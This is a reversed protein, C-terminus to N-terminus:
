SKKRKRLKDIIVCAIIGFCIGITDILVDTVCGVRGPVFLQHIEDTIAFIVCFAFAIVRAKKITSLALVASMYLLAYETMHALKRVPWQISAPEIELGFIDLFACIWECVMYSLSGSEAGDGASFGFIIFMMIILPLTRLLPKM